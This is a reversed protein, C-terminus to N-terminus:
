NAFLSRRLAGPLVPAAFAAAATAGGRRLPTLFARPAMALGQAALRCATAPPHNLRLARRALYRLHIAESRADPSIGYRRATTLAQERGRRMRDLDASLGGASARYRVMLSDIGVLAHGEGVLRILWELDENHVMDPRFGGLAMFVDRRVALNSMTCVPNEGLLMQIGVRGAPVTSLTTLAQPDDNFFGIQGFLADGTGASFASALTLLKNAEWLDDADCFAIIEGKAQAAGFNRADSPGKGPNALLRIRRDTRAFTRVLACTEDPSGDDVVLIEFDDFSQGLLSDLTELITAAANYAPIVISFRTM